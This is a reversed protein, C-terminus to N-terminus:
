SGQGASTSALLKLAEWYPTLLAQSNKRRHHTCGTIMTLV